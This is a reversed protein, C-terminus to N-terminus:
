EEIGIAESPCALAADRCTAQAYPPVPDAKVIAKNEADMEFVEPCISPCLDCSICADRDIIAKM